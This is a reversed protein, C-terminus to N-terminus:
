NMKQLSELLQTVEESIEIIWIVEFLNHMNTEMCICFVVSRGPCFIKVAELEELAYSQEGSSGVVELRSLQEKYEKEKNDSSPEEPERSGRSTYDVNKPSTTTKAEKSDSAALVEDRERQTVVFSVRLTELEKELENQKASLEEEKKALAEILHKEQEAG